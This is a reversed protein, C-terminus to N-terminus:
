NPENDGLYKGLAFM